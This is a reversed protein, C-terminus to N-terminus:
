HHHFTEPDLIENSGEYGGVQEYVSLAAREILLPGNIYWRDGQARGFYPVLGLADGV